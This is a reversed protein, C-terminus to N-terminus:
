PDHTTEQAAATLTAIAHAFAQMQLSDLTPREGGCVPQVITRAFDVRAVTEDSLSGDARAASLIKVAASSSACLGEVLRAQDSQLPGTACGSLTLLITLILIRM